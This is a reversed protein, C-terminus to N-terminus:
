NGTKISRKHLFPIKAFHLGCLPDQEGHTSILVLRLWQLSTKPQAGSFVKDWTPTFASQWLLPVPNEAFGNRLTDMLFSIPPTSWNLEQELFSRGRHTKLDRINLIFISLCFSIRGQSTSADRKLSAINKYLYHFIVVKKHFILQYPHVQM